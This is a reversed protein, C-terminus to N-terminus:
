DHTVICDGVYMSNKNLILPMNFINNSFMVEVTIWHDLYEQKEFYM